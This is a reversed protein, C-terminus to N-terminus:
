LEAYQFGVRETFDRFSSKKSVFLVWVYRVLGRRKEENLESYRLLNSRDVFEPTEIRDIFDPKVSRSALRSHKRRRKRQMLRKEGMSREQRANRRSYISM